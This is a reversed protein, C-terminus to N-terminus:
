DRIPGYAFRMGPEIGHRAAFGARTEIVYMAPSGSGYIQDSMPTTERAIRLIHRGADAFLMDLSGPTNRMWFGRPASDAYVFLMGTQDNPLVRGMLGRAREVRDDAIEVLIRASAVGDRALFVLEADARIAGEQAKAPALFLIGVLL